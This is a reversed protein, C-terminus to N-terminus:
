EVPASNAWQTATLAMSSSPRATSPKTSRPAGPRCITSSQDPKPWRVVALPVTSSSLTGTAPSRSSCLPRSASTGFMWPETDCSIWAAMSAPMAALANSSQMAKTRSRERGHISAVSAPISRALSSGKMMASIPRRCTSSCAASASSSRAPWTSSSTLARGMSSSDAARAEMATASALTSVVSILRAALSFSNSSAPLRAVRASNM